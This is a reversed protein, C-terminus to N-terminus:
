GYGLQLLSGDSLTLLNFPVLHVLNEGLPFQDATAGVFSMNGCSQRESWSANPTSPLLWRDISFSGGPAVDVTAVLTAGTIEVARSSVTGAEGAAGAVGAFRDPLLTALAFSSNRKGSHPGDGGMYYVRTTGDPMKLEHRRTYFTLSRVHM